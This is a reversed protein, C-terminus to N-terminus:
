KEDIREKKIIQSSKKIKMNKTTRVIKDDILLIERELGELQSKLSAIYRELEKNGLLYFVVELEYKISIEEEADDYAEEIEKSASELESWFGTCGGCSGGCLPNAEGMVSFLLITAYFFIKRKMRPM